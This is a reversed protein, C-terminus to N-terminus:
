WHKTHAFYHQPGYPPGWHHRLSYSLSYQQYMYTMASLTWQCQWMSKNNYWPEMITRTNIKQKKMFGRQKERDWKSLQLNFKYHFVLLFPLFPIHVSKTVWKELLSPGTLKMMIINRDEQVRQSKVQMWKEQSSPRKKQMERLYFILSLM